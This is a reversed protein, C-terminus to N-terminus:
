GVPAAGPNDLLAEATCVRSPVTRMTSGRGMWYNEVYIAVMKETIKEITGLYLKSSDGTSAYVVKAGVALPYGFADNM